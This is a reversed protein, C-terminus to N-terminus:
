WCLEVGRGQSSASKDHQAPSPDWTHTQSLLSSILSFLAACQQQRNQRSYCVWLGVYLVPGSHPSLLARLAWILAAYLAVFADLCSTSCYLRIQGDDVPVFGFHIQTAQLIWYSHPHHDRCGTQEAPTSPPIDQPVEFASPLVGGASCSGTCCEDGLLLQVGGAGMRLACTHREAWIGAWHPKRQLVLSFDFVTVPSVKKLPNYLKIVTLIFM